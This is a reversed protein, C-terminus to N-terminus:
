CLFWDYDQDRGHWAFDRLQEAYEVFRYKADLRLRWVTRRNTYFYWSKETFGPDWEVEVTRGDARNAVITGIAKITMRSVTQGRM